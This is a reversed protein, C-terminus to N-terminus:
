LNAYHDYDPGNSNPYEDVHDRYWSWRRAPLRPPREQQVRIHLGRRPHVCHGAAQRRSGSEIYVCDAMGINWHIIWNLLFHIKDKSIICM